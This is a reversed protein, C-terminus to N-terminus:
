KGYLWFQVMFIGCGTLARWLSVHTQLPLSLINAAILELVIGFVTIGVFAYSLGTVNKTSFNKIIQFIYSICFFASACWGCIEGVQQSSYLAMPILIFMGLINGGLIKEFKIHAHSEDYYVRQLILILLVTLQFVNMVKYPLPLGLCFLYYFMAFYGNLFGLLLFDSLGSATRLRINKIIQPILCIVYCCQSIWIIGHAVTYIDWFM